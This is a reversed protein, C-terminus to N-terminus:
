IRVTLAASPALGLDALTMGLKDEGLEQRLGPPGPVIFTFGDGGQREIVSDHLTQLMADSPLTQMLQSGDALRLRIQCPRIEQVGIVPPSSALHSEAAALPNGGEAQARQGGGGRRAM